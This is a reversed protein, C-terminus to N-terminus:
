RRAGVFCSVLSSVFQILKMGAFFLNGSILGTVGSFLGDLTYTREKQMRQLFFFKEDFTIPKYLIERM